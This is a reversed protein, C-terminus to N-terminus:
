KNFSKILTFRGRVNFVPTIYIVTFMMIVESYLQNGSCYRRFDVFNESIWVGKTQHGQINKNEGSHFRVTYLPRCLREGHLFQLPSKLHLLSLKGPLKSHTSFINEYIHASSVRNVSNGMLIALLCDFIVYESRHDQKVCFDM